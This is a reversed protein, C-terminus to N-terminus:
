KTFVLVVESDIRPSGKSEALRRFFSKHSKKGDESVLMADIYSVPTFGIDILLQGTMNPLDVLQGKRVFSKVVLALHSGPTFLQLLQCYIDGVAEWYTGGTNHGINVSSDGYNAGERYTSRVENAIGGGGSLSLGEYPPSTIGSVRLNGLQGVTDGYRGLKEAGGDYGSQDVGHDDVRNGYPPSTLAGVQRRSINGEHSGQRDVTTARAMFDGVSGDQVPSRDRTDPQSFPPSTISGGIVLGELIEVLQRSDGQLLLPTICGCSLERLNETYGRLNANGIEVFKQELEVGIWPIWFHSAALGGLGVGGFPDVLLTETGWWGKKLGEEVIWYILKKSFKAPHSMSEPVVDINKRWPSGYLNYVKEYIM